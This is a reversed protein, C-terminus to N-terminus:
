APRSALVAVLVAIEQLQEAAGLFDGTVGGLRCRFYIALLGSIFLCAVAPVLLQAGGIPLLIAM